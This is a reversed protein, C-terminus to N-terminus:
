KVFICIITINDKGGNELATNMLRKSINSSSSTTQVIDIIEENSVMDTLGDSCLLFIDGRVIKDSVFYPKIQKEDEPLGLHQTLRYKRNHVYDSGYAMEYMERETHEMSIQQINGNRILFIPSDGINCLYFYNNEYLVLSATTGMRGKVNNQMEECILENARFFINNLLSEPMIDGSKSFFSAATKAAILSAREGYLLGGMGDFVGFMHRSQLDFNNDKQESKSQLVLENFVCSDQNNSRVKGINTIANAYIHM